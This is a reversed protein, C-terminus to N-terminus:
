PHRQSASIRAFAQQMVGISTHLVRASLILAHQGLMPDDARHAALAVAPVVRARLAEEAGQLELTNVMAAVSCAIFGLSVHDFPDLDDVVPLTTVRFQAIT